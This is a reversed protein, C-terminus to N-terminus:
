AKNSRCKTICFLPLKNTITTFSPTLDKGTRANTIEFILGPYSLRKAQLADREKKKRDWFWKNLQKKSYGTAKILDNFLVPDWKGEYHQYYRMLLNIQQNSKRKANRVFTNDNANTVCDFDLAISGDIEKNAEEACFQEFSSKFDQHPQEEAPPTYHEPMQTVFQEYHSEFQQM